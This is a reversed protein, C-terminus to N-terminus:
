LVHLCFLIYSILFGFCTLLSTRSYLSSQSASSHQSNYKSKRSSDTAPYDGLGAAVAPPVKDSHQGTPVANNHDEIDYGTLPEFYIDFEAYLWCILSYYSHSSFLWKCDSKKWGLILKERDFVVRYGTMFNEAILMLRPMLIFMYSVDHMM